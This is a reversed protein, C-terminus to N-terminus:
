AAAPPLNVGHGGGGAADQDDFVFRGDRQREFVIQGKLPILDRHNLVADFGQPARAGLREVRDQQVDHQRAFVAELDAALQPAAPYARRDQHQRRARLFGLLHQAELGAGVVVHGLREANALQAGPNRRQQPAALGVGRRRRDPNAVGVDIEISGFDPTAAFRHRQRRQFEPQQLSENARAAANERAGLQDAVCPSGVRKDGVADDVVVNSTQPFFQFGVDVLRAEQLVHAADAVPEFWSLQRFASSQLSPKRVTYRYDRRRPTLVMLRNNTM